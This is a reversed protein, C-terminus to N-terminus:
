SRNAYDELFKLHDLTTKWILETHPKIQNVGSMCTIFIGEVDLRNEKDLMYVPLKHKLIYEKEGTLKTITSGDPIFRAERVIRLDM